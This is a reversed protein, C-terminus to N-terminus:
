LWTLGAPSAAVWGLRWGPDATCGTLALRVVIEGLTARTRADVTSPSVWWNVSLRPRNAADTNRLTREGARPPGLKTRAGREKAGHM